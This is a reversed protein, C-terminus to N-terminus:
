KQHARGVVTRSDSRPLSEILELTVHLSKIQVRKIKDDADFM